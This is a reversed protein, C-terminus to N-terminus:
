AFIEENPAYLGVESEVEVKRHPSRLGRNRGASAPCTVLVAQHRWVVRAEPPASRPMEMVDNPPTDVHTVIQSTDRLVLGAGQAPDHGAGGVVAPTSYPM